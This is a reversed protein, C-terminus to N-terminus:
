EDCNSFRDYSLFKILEKTLAKCEIRRMFERSQSQSLINLSGEYTIRKDIIALKRHHGGDELLVQIGLNEFCRIGLESQIAMVEDHESPDRTVIFIAVDKSKLHRFIPLLTKIRKITLYPSEVIVEKTANQLDIAFQSYFTKESYLSSLFLDQSQDEKYKVKSGWKM